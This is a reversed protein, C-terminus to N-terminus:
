IYVWVLGDEIKHKVRNLPRNGNEICHGNTTDFKWAHKPCTLTNGQLSESTIQTSQHPCRHDYAIISNETDKYLFVGRGNLEFYHTQDPIVDDVEVVQHWNAEATLNEAKFEPLDMEILIDMAWVIKTLGLTPFAVLLADIIEDASVGENLARKLYQKFGKKTQKDVKTIVSIIAITKKDLSGGSKKVFSFYAQMAEPRIKLLYNLAESM